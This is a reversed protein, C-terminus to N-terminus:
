KIRVTLGPAGYELRAGPVGEGAELQKKVAATDTSWKRLQTPILADDEIVVHQRPKTRSVTGLQHPVKQEGLADLLKGMGTTYTAAQQEYRKARATYTEAVAKMAKALEQAEVRATIFHGLLDMADVEGDVSDLFTQQDFDDGLLERVEAAIAEITHFDAHKM